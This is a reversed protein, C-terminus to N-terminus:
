EERVLEGGNKELTEAIDHLEPVTRALGGVVIHGEKLVKELRKARYESMGAGTLAGVFGGVAGGAGAGALAAALPGAVVIGLPPITVLTGVAAVAAAVAGVAGGIAGGAGAGKLAKNDKELEVEDVLYTEPDRGEYEPHTRLHHDRTDDAMLVSLESPPYGREELTKVGRRAKDLDSFIASVFRSEGTPFREFTFQRARSNKRRAM